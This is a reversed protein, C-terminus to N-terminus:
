LSIIHWPLAKSTPSPTWQTTCREPLMSDKGYLDGVSSETM